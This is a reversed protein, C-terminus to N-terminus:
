ATPREHRTPGAGMTPSEATKRRCEPCSKTRVRNSVTADYAHSRPCTWWLRKDSGASVENPTLERNLTPHFWRAIEPHTRGLANPASACTRCGAGNTRSLIQAHYEHGEPCQWWVSRGSGTVVDTPRLNGNRTPHWQAALKPNTISLSNVDAAVARNVCIGCTTHRKTRSALTAPFSHGAGCKWWVRKGSGPVVDSPTLPHNRDHDWEAALHPHTDALTNFGPLLKLNSCHPCSIDVRHRLLRSVSSRFQHGRDCM